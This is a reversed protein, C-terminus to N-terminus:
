PVQKKFLNPISILLYLLVIGVLSFKILAAYRTLELSLPSYHQDITQLMLLNEAIDLVGAVLALRAMLWGLFQMKSNVWKSAIGEAALALFFVYAVIFLFDIQINLRVDKITWVNLLAQVREPHNALELDVIARPSDSTKLVAGQWRLAAMMLICFLAAIYIPQKFM